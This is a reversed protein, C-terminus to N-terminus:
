NVNIYSIIPIPSKKVSVDIQYTNDSLKTYNVKIFGSIVKDDIFYSKDDLEYFFKFLHYGKQNIEVHIEKLYIRLKKLRIQLKKFLMIDTIDCFDISLLKNKVYKCQKNYNLSNIQVIYETIKNM